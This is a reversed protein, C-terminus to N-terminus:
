GLGFLCTNLVPIKRGPNAKIDDNITHFKSSQEGTLPYFLKILLTSNRIAVKGDGKCKALQRLDTKTVDLAHASFCLEHTRLRSKFWTQWYQPIRQAIM